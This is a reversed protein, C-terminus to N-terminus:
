VFLPIRVKEGNKMASEHACIGAACWNAARAADICAPREEVISRIFEHVLHGHSGGHCDESKDKLPAPLLDPRWPPHVTKSTIPRDEGTQKLPAMQILTAGHRQAITQFTGITGYIDFAEECLVATEFLSRTIEMRATSNRLTFLATEIPYPNGYQAHFESRMTGSGFCCTSEAQTDLIDLLPAVAHTMYWMPPLGRWLPNICELDQYHSGRMFQIQGLTGGSYLERAYLYDRHFRATEMMMYNTGSRKQADVIQHLDELSTAMPVACAVHLGAKLAALTPPVHTTVPTCIHVADYLGSEFVERSDYHHHKFLDRPVGDVAGRNTDCIGVYEVDPHLRYLDAFARGFGLGIVAIRIRKSM